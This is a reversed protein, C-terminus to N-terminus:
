PDNDGDSPDEGETQDHEISADKRGEEPEDKLRLRHLLLRHHQHLLREEDPRKEVEVKDDERHSRDKETIHHSKKILVDRHNNVPQLRTLKFVKKVKNIM